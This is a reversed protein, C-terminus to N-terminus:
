WDLYEDILDKWEYPPKTFDKIDPVPYSASFKVNYKQMKEQLNECGETWEAKEADSGKKYKADYDVSLLLYDFQIGSVEVAEFNAKTETLLMAEKMTDVYGAATDKLLIQMWGEKINEYIGLGENYDRNFAELVAYVKQWGDGYYAEMFKCVEADYEEETMYPDWLLKAILYWRLADFEGNNGDRGNGQSFVGITNNDAFYALNGALVEYKVNPFPCARYAFNTNYDWAYLNECIASWDAVDQAFEKNCDTGNLPHVFCCEHSCLQIMVNDAPKIDKPAHRTYMYAFTVVYVDPFKKAVEAAIRNVFEIMQGATGGDEPKGTKSYKAYTKMCEDCKCYYMNDNQTVSILDADPDARLFALVNKLVTPYLSEDSLCPQTTQDYVWDSLPQLTHAFHLGDVWKMEAVKHKDCMDNGITLNDNLYTNNYANRHEFVPYETYDVGAVDLEAKPSIYDSDANMFCWGIVDELFDYCGYMAGRLASGTIVINNGVSKVSFNEENNVSDAHTVTEEKVIIAFDGTTGTKVPLATGCAKEIYKAIDRAGKVTNESAGAPYLVTYKAIDNGNVTLKEIPFTKEALEASKVTVRLDDGVTCTKAFNVAGKYLGEADPATIIVSEGEVKIEYEAELKEDYSLKIKRASGDSNKVKLAAGCTEKVQWALREAADLAGGDASDAVIVYDSVGNEVISVRGSKPLLNTIVQAIEARSANGRPNFKGDSGQMLGNRRVADIPEKMWADFSDEDAFADLKPADPLEIGMYRVFKTLISALEARTINDAPSFRGDGRGTVIGCEAAWGVSDSYWQCPLTDDFPLSEGKGATKTCAVRSFATVVEARTIKATPDFKVDSKGKMIGESYVTSVAAEYWQGEAVDDFPLKESAGALVPVSAAVMVASLAGALIKKINM